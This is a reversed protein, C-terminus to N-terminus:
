TLSTIKTRFSHLSSLCNFDGNNKSTIGRSLASLKKVALYYCLKEGNWAKKVIQIINQFM